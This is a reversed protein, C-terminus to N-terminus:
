SASNPSVAPVRLTAVAPSELLLYNGDESLGGGIVSWGRHLYFRRARENQAVCKLRLPAPYSRLAFDLLRSGAGRSQRATDIYLHHIFRDPAWVSIFGLIAGAERAVHVVEGAADRDLDNPGIREAPLWHFHRRRVDRYIRNLEPWDAATAPAIEM